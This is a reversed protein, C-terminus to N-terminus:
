TKIFIYKTKIPNFTVLRLESWTQLTELGENIETISLIPDTKPKLLSHDYAFLLIESNINDVIDDIYSLFHLLGLISSQPVGAKVYIWERKSGGITIRQLTSIVQLYEYYNFTLLM